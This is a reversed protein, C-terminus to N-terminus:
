LNATWKLQGYFMIQVEINSWCTYISGQGFPHSSQSKWVEKGSRTTSKIKLHINQCRDGALCYIDYECYMVKGNWKWLTNSFNHHWESLPEWKFRVSNFKSSTVWRCSVNAPQSSTWLVSLTHIDLRRYCNIVTQEAWRNQHAPLRVALGPCM